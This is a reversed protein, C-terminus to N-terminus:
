IPLRYLGERVILAIFFLKCGTASASTTSSAAVPATASSAVPATVSAPGFLASKIHVVAVSAVEGGAGKGASQLISNLPSSLKLDGAEAPDQRAFELDFETFETEYLSASSSSVLFPLLM